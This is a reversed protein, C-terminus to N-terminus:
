PYSSSNFWWEVSLGLLHEVDRRSFVDEQPYLQRAGSDRLSLLYVLRLQPRKFTGRGSPSFYPILGFRTLSAERMGEGDPAPLQYRRKQYSGEVAVGFHEGLFVHPRAVLAGEDYKESSTVAQSADRFFRLYGAWQVGVYQNEWNSSFAIRTESAGRTSLDNAFTTPAVLPDYAAIGRAHRVFVNAFTDRVGTWYGVQGGLMWGIEDPLARDRNPAVLDRQVGASLQHLEGYAIFKFGVGDDGRFITRGPGNRLFHTVKLTEVLRPRDLKLTDVTGFGLPAVAPLAQFQYPTDLRQMGVHLAVLTHDAPPLRVGVGGGVTNQNDLPWFNLLYVDDGRYMRSGAWLTLRQYQGQAYLNRLGINQMPKGTFHFFPPFLALTTVVRSKVDDKFTDERRLEIEAYSDEDVLRPGFAVVNAPRHTGGRLDSGIMLRGYSGFEFRGTDAPQPPKAEPQPPKAEPQQVNPQPTTPVLPGQNPPTEVPTEPATQATAPASALLASVFLASSAALKPAKSAM